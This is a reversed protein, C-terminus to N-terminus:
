AVSTALGLARLLFPVVDTLSEPAQGTAGAGWAAFLAPNRTHTGVREDELNGHDSVVAVTTAALDFEALLTQL